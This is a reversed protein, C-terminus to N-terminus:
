TVVAKLIEHELNSLIELLQLLNVPMLYFSGNPLHSHVLDMSFLCEFFLHTRSELSSDRLVCSATTGLGRACLKDSTKDFSNKNWIMYYKENTRYSIFQANRYFTM